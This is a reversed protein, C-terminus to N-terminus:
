RAFLQPGVLAIGSFLLLWLVVKRFGADDLRGYLHLGIWMGLALAPAGYLFYMGVARDFAGTAALSIGTAIFSALIVPQYVSRQQDKSWGRMGCWITVFVGALGTMGGLIGNVFGVLLEFPRSAPIPTLHPRLLGNLSYLVLVTGIGLRVTGPDLFHLLWVGLPVGITNGVVLPVVHRWDFSRRLHWMGYGQVFLGFSVILCAFQLPTVIHLWVGSVVLGFAFGALGTVIGGVFTSAVFLAITVVDM